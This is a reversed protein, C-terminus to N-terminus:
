VFSAKYHCSLKMCVFVISTSVVIVPEGQDQKVIRAQLVSKNTKKKILLFLRGDSLGKVELIESAIRRVTQWVIRIIDTTLIEYQIM